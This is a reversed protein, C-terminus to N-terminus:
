SQLAKEAAAIDEPSTIQVWRTARVSKFPIGSQISAAVVTQPLGYEDSDAAKPALPYQFIRTDLVYLNTGLVTGEVHEGETIEVISDDRTAVAGGARPALLHEVLMVWGEEALCAEIDERAYIDDGMLVIFRDRLVDRARWLADATGKPEKQEVYVIRRGQYENGFYARIKEQLYGVVLVVEDVSEPLAALKHELITKGVVKLMPKPTEKTLEGMRIGRGAALIVAQM